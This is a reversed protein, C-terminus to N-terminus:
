TNKYLILSNGLDPIPVAPLRCGLERQYDELALAVGTLTESGWDHLMLYGGEEMRPWFYRLGSLTSERFDADLSVLAFRAELGKLSDPFFGPKMVVSEPHPMVSLVQEVATNRHAELFAPGCTGAAREKEAEEPSFGQFSDFLYLTREPMLGNMLRAFGGRYVGLEALAGPIAAIRRSLLELTATRVYDNGRDLSSKRLPAPVTIIQQPPVLAELLPRGLVSEALTCARNRDLLTCSNKLYLVQSRSIGLAECTRSVAESHRTTVLILDAPDFTVESPCKVPKGQFRATSPRSELYAAIRDPSLGKEGLESAGCGTGWVYIAM